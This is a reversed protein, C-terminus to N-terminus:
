VVPATAQRALEEALSGAKDGLVRVLAGAVAALDEATVEKAPVVGLKEAIQQLTGLGAHADAYINSLADTVTELGTGIHAEYYSNGAKAVAGLFEPSTTLGQVLEEVTPMDTEGRLIQARRIIEYRQQRRIDGPCGFHGGWPVGGMGHWGIGTEDPTEALTDATGSFVHWAALVDLQADTLPEDPRGETEVGWWRRNGDGQAWCERDLAQYQDIVGLRSVWLHSFVRNPPVSSRFWNVPDGDGDQVHLVWGQVPTQLPGADAAFSIAESAAPPYRTLM